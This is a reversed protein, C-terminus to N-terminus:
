GNRKSLYIVGNENITVRGSIGLPRDLWSLYIPGGYVEANFKTFNPNTIIGNPKIKFMPSDNHSAVIQISTNSLRSGVNIAIISADSKTIYYKGGKQIDWTNSLELEVYGHEKLIEESLAVAQFSTHAKGIFDIFKNIM